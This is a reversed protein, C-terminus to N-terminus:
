HHTDRGFTKQFLRLKRQRSARGLLAIDLLAILIALVALLICCGWLLLQLAPSLSETDLALGAAILVCCLVLVAVGATRVVRKGRYRIPEDENSTSAPV